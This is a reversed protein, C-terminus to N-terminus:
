AYVAEQKLLGHKIAYAQQSKNLFRGSRMIGSTEGWYVGIVCACESGLIDGNVLETVKYIDRGCCSCKVPDCEVMDNFPRGRKRIDRERIIRIGGVLESAKIKSTM